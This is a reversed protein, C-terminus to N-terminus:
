GLRTSVYWQRLDRLWVQLREARTNNGELRAIAINRILMTRSRRYNDLDFTDM